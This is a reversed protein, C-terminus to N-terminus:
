YSRGEGWGNRPRGPNRDPAGSAWAAEYIRMLQPYNREATYRELYVRRAVKGMEQIAQPHNWGWEAKSALDQPNGPHFHLGTGGDDVMDAGAGLRGAIVPVGCAFAEAVILPSGELWESPFVLFRAGKLLEIVEAHNRWGLYEASREERSSSDGVVLSRLPGDGVIKLPVGELMRWGALLTRIGKEPTLRGVFLAYSRHGTGPGPDPAIFNPKVHLRDAPIGLQLFLPRMSEGLIVYASVAKAWTRIARHFALMGAVVASQSHSGRYCAHRIGPWALAKGVCDQCVAEQRYLTAAPCVLRFNHLTQVVPVGADRCAYYASPSIRYFTNHIHAVDVRNDRLLARIARFARRSWIAGSAAGLQGWGHLDDNGVVYEIVHHGYERLLASEAAFVRDEGGESLYRNHALLINM